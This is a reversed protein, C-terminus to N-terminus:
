PQGYLPSFLTYHSTHHRDSLLLCRIHPPSSHFPNRHTRSKARVDGDGRSFQGSVDARLSVDRQASSFRFCLYDTQRGRARACAGGRRWVGHRPHFFNLKLDEQPRWLLGRSSEFLGMKLRKLFKFAYFNSELHM